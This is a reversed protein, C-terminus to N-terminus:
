GQQFATFPKLSKKHHLKEIGIGHDEVEVYVTDITEGQKWM